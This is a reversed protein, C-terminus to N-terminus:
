KHWQDKESLGHAVEVVHGLALLGGDLLENPGGTVVGAVQSGQGADEGIHQRRYDSRCWVAFTLQDPHASAHWARGLEAGLRHGADTVGGAGM